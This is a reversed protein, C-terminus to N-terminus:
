KRRRLRRYPTDEALTTATGSGGLICTAVSLVNLAAQGLTALACKSILTPTAVANSRITTGLHLIDGHSQVLLHEPLEVPLHQSHSHWGKLSLHGDSICRIPITRHHRSSAHPDSLSANVHLLNLRIHEEELDM